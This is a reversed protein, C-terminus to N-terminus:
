SYSLSEYIANSSLEGTFAGSEEESCNQAITKIELEQLSKKTHDLFIAPPAIAIDITNTLQKQSTLYCQKLINCYSIMEQYTKNM